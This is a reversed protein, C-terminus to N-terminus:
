IQVSQALNEILYDIFVRIKAPQYRSPPYVLWAGGTYGTLFHWQPLVQILEGNKIAEHVTFYPLSTIGLGQKAADMRVQTHNAAYRGSVEVTIKQTTQHFMWQRDKPHEGLCICSHERLQRPHEIPEYQALYDPSACIVHEIDLLKRGIMGQPPDTAIRIVLDVHDDILDIYRDELLMQIDVRPYRRLFAPILPHILIHGIAKPVSLRLVGQPIPNLQGSVDLVADAASRMDKCRQYVAQGQENLRLKRTTRELLRCSLQEELRQVSRSVSSPSIGLVQAAESFSDAEVVAAFVAMEYLLGISDNTRKM